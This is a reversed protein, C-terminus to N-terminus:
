GKRPGTERGTLLGYRFASIWRGRYCFAERRVGERRFGISELLRISPRNFSLVEADIRHLGLQAFGAGVTARVAESTLGRGWFRPATWYAIEANRESGLTVRKLAVRGVM